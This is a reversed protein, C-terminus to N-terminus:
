EQKYVQGEKMVFSVKELVRVDKRPDGQVAVIDASKGPKISGIKSSVGILDAASVTAAQIAHMPTMGYEVMLGFERANTGFPCVSIDTGFAIKVGADVAKRFNERQAQAVQKGHEVFDPPEHAPDLVCEGIELTPVLYTGHQKMLQRSEDDALSGHEISAVGARVANKIGEPSHAHAAVRLGFSQAEQVAASLEDPTFEASKVNSNHTLVAGTALVKVLDVRQNALARIRQRVEWPSNAEGFHLDWPLIIDPAFGTVAGAGGTITIYAGAVYMRPGVLDGRNIADRLAVDVLARYAGVDRVTTFGALLVAKANPISQFADFASTKRLESLPDADAYSDTLHTHCDILGPLVTMGSLDIVKADSPISLNGGVAEIKGGKVLIIQNSLVTGADTDIMKGAKIATVQGQLGACFLVLSAAIGFRTAM